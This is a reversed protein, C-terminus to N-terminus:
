GVERAAVVALRACPPGVLEYVFVGALVLTTLFNGLEPFERAALMTLGIAVGAQPLLALGLYRRIALSSHTLMAGLASGAVKGLARALIYGIGVVGTSLLARFDLGAGALTFFAAYLPAEVGSLSRFVRQHESLLNVVLTGMMM